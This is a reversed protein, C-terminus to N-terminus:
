RREAPRRLWDVLGGVIAVVGGVIALGCAAGILGARVIAADEASPVSM